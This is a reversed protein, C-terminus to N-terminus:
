EGRIVSMSPPSDEANAGWKSPNPGMEFELTSGKAIDQYSIWTKSYAAGNLKAFQIYMNKKSINKALITFQKGSGLKIVAKEFQPAGIVFVGDAPSVPYIGVSSMVYWASMQGTDDDGSLGEVSNNYLTSLVQRIRMQTKWPEGAYNYMYITHHSPENGHAYQGILGSIDATYGPNGTIKSSVSFLSDLKASFKKRGGVLNILGNPDHPVFFTWQWSTGEVFDQRHHGAEYPDFPSKWKGDAFRGRMFGVSTDFVNKYNSARKLYFEYDSNKGMMKAMRAICYDDFAYELTKSVSGSELESPVFGFKKYNKTGYTRKMWVGFSDRQATSKMMEFLKESDYNKIGEAYANAIVPMAHYGLMTMTENGAIPYIPLLNRQEYYAMFGKMLDNIMSPNILTQLPLATRYVDWLGLFGIYNAWGNTQHIKHDVGRYRGDVDDFTYMSFTSHFLATYFSNMQSESFPGSVEMKGLEKNWASEAEAKVQDFTKNNIESELNKRAGEEDVSSIGIKVYLPESSNSDFSLMAQIKGNSKKDAIYKGNVILQSTKVPRSIEMFFYVYHEKAWGSSIRYGSIHREDVITIASSIITDYEEEHLITCNCCAGQILDVLLSQTKDKPYEYKYYAARQSATISAVTNYKQLKVSYFGPAAKEETHSFGSKYEDQLFGNKDADPLDGSFPLLLVDHMESCGVGNVHTQSFGYIFNDAYTYGSHLNRTDPGPMVMGFPYSAAPTIHGHKGTGIFPNVFSTYDKPSQASSTALILTPIITFFFKRM